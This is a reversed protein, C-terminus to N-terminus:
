FHVGPSLQSYRLRDVLCQPRGGYQVVLLPVCYLPAIFIHAEPDSSSLLPKRRSPGGLILALFDRLWDTNSKFRSGSHEGYFLKLSYFLDDLVTSAEPIM